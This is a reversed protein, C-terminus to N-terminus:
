YEAVFSKGAVDLKNAKIKKKVNVIGKTITINNYSVAVLVSEFNITGNNSNTTFIVNGFAKVGDKYQQKESTITIPNKIITNKDVILENARVDRFLTLNKYPGKWIEDTSGANYTVTSKEKLEIKGSQEFWTKQVNTGILKLEGGNVIKCVSLSTDTIFFGAIDLSAGEQIVITKANSNEVLKPYNPTAVSLKQIIVASNADPLPSTAGSSRIWNTPESWSDNTSGKWAYTAVQAEAVLLHSFFVLLFIYKKMSKM